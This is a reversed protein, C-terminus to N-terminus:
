KILKEYLAYGISNFCAVIFITLITWKNLGDYYYIEALITYLGATCTVCAILPKLTWIMADIRIRVGLSISDEMEKWDQKAKVIHEYPMRLFHLVMGPSTAIRLGICASSIIIAKEILEM